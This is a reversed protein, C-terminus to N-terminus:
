DLCVTMCDTEWGDRKTVYSVRDVSKGSAVAMFQEPTSVTVQEHTDYNTQVTATFGRNLKSVINQKEQKTKM